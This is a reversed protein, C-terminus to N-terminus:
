LELVAGADCFDLGHKELNAIRKDEDWILKMKM